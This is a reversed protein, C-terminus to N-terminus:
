DKINTKYDLIKRHNGSKSKIILVDPLIVRAYYCDNVFVGYYKVFLILLCGYFLEILFSTKVTRIVFLDILMLNRSCALFMHNKKKLLSEDVKNKMFLRHYFFNITVFILMQLMFFFVCIFVIKMDIFVSCIFIMIIPLIRLVLGILKKNDIKNSAIQISINLHNLIKSGINTNFLENIKKVYVRDTHNVYVCDICDTVRHNVNVCKDWLFPVFAVCIVIVAIIGITQLLKWVIDIVGYKLAKLECQFYIYICLALSTYAFLRRIMLQMDEYLSSRDVQLDAEFFRLKKSRFLTFLIIYGFLYIIGVIMPQYSNYKKRFKYLFEYMRYLPLISLFIFILALPTNFFIKYNAYACMLLGSSVVFLLNLTKSYLFYAFIMVVAVHIYLQLQVLIREREVIDVGKKSESTKIIM